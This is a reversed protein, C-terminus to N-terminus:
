EKSVKILEEYIKVMAYTDLECYKLLNIRAKEQEELPLYKIRPYLSMVEGGNHVGDLNKYNLSPDDPFLSPLVSKISFSGGMEKKYYLGQRFPDLLDKMNNSITLLKDSLDGYYSALEKLRSCEFSKNYALVCANLPIDNILSESIARRPDNISDGLFEKHKLEGGEKEIYHLSYQFPIQQYPKTGKYLPIVPQMTEFDLFYLPYHLTSLFDKIGNKDVYPPMNYLYYEVQRNRTTNTCVSDYVIDEYKIKNNYYYEIKKKFSLRYLDFVSPSHLHKSCYKWYSCRYPDDCSESLDIKPEEKSLLLLEALKINNEVRKIEENVLDDVKTIKFLGKIDLEDDRIYNNNVNILYVSKVNIGCKKLVYKQYSVDAIYVYNDEHTSSKVEYISYGDGEKRLIDVACYLGNYEFSAECINEVGEKIYELTLEKMKNLDLKNDKYVTVEKFDGFLTMALDGVENGNGMRALTSVDLYKEEPKYKNLWAIKPCQWLGCYKSKSFFM